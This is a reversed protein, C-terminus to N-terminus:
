EYRLSEIPDLAAAKRAPYIGAIVGVIFCLFFGFFVWDWPVIFGTGLLLSVINGVMVGFGIGVLGGLQTIVIAETLFQLLITSKRAGIAKRVGIERTRETVSVLMINMLGIAASFLTIIAIVTASWTLYRLNDMLNNIIADVKIIGFNNDEAPKLGRIRRFEGVAEFTLREMDKINESLVHLGFSRGSRPFDQALTTIPIVCIKDGGVLGQAGVEALTGIVQYSKGNVQVNKGIPSENKFLLNVVEHGLLVVNRYLKVDDPNINRGKDIPYNDTVIFSEDGGILQLNNQTREGKYKATSTFSGSASVSVPALDSFDNKFSVAEEYSIPEHRQRKKKQEGGSRVGTTYNEIRFTNTGIRVFSNSFWYKVGDIATLVGILATLGFAIILITIITRLFNARIARLAEIINLLIIM